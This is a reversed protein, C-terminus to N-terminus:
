WSLAGEGDEEVIANFTGEPLVLQLDRDVRSERASVAMNPPTKEEMPPCTRLLKATKSGYGVVDLAV